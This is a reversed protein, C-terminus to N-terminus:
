GKPLDQPLAKVNIESINKYLTGGLAKVAPAEGDLLIPVQAEIKKELDPQYFDVHMPLGSVPDRELDHILVSYKRGGMELSILSSEGAEKYAIDFDKINVEISQSKTKPGYLVAPLLGKERLGRTKKGIITRVKATLTLM